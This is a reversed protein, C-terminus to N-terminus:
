ATGGELIEFGTDVITPADPRVPDALITEVAVKGILVRNSLITALPIPLAQGIDLGNFGFLALDQKPVIGRALCHFMGGVAMDDNSFVM